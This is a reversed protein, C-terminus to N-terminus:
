WRPIIFGASSIILSVASMRLDVRQMSGIGMRKRLPVERTNKTTGWGRWSRLM